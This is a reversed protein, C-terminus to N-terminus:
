AQCHGNVSLTLSPLTWQCESDSKATDMSVESEPKTADMSVESDPKATDM